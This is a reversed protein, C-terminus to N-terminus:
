LNCRWQRQWLLRDSSHRELDEDQCNDCVEHSRGNGVGFVRGNNGGDVITKDTGNGIIYLSKDVNVNERYDGEFVRIIDYFRPHDFAEDVSSQITETGVDDDLFFITWRDSDAGLANTAAWLHSNVGVSNYDLDSNSSSGGSSSRVDSNISGRARIYQNVETGTNNSEATQMGSLTAPNATNRAVATDIYSREGPKKANAYANISEGRGYFLHTITANNVARAWIDNILLGGSVGFSTDAKHNSGDKAHSEDVGNIVETAKLYQYAFAGGDAEINMVTDFQGENMSVDAGLSAQNGSEDRALAGKKGQLALSASARHYISVDNDHSFVGLTNNFLGANMIAFVSTNARDGNIDVARSSALGSAAYSADTRQWISSSGDAELAMISSYEGAKMTANVSTSAKNGSGDKASAGSSGTLASTADGRHYISVNDDHASVALTNNFGGKKMSASFTTSGRDTQISSGHSEALGSMALTANTMQWISSSGDAELGMISSYEGAKMTANVFTSAKNGSDDKASAGSSGTIASTAVGKHYIAVSENVSVVRITNNFEGRSMDASFSTNGRDGADNSGRSIASGTKASTANTRQWVTAGAGAQAKQQSTYEGSAMKANVKSLALNGYSDLAYSGSSARRAMTAITQEQAVSGLADAKAYLNSEFAGNNMSARAYTKSKNGGFELGLTKSSGKLADTANFVQYSVARDVSKNVNAGQVTSFNGADMETGTYIGALYKNRILAFAYAKESLARGSQVLHIIDLSGEASARQSSNFSGEDLKASVKSYVLDGGANRAFSSSSAGRADSIQSNENAYASIDAYSQQSTSMRGDFVNVLVGSRNGTFSSGLSSAHAARAELDSSQSATAMASGPNSIESAIQHTNLWGKFFGVETEASSGLGDMAKSKVFGKRGDMSADIKVSMEENVSLSQDMDLSGSYLWGFQRVWEPGRCAGLCFKVLDSNRFSARQDVSLTSPALSSSSSSDIGSANKSFLYNYGEYGGSGRYIQMMNISGEGSITRSSSITAPSFGGSGSEHVAVSDSVFYYDSIEVGGTTDSVSFGFGIAFSESIL